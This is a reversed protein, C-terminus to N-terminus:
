RGSKVGAHPGAKLFLPIEFRVQDAVPQRGLGILLEIRLNRVDVPQIRLGRRQGGLAFARNRGILQGTYLGQFALM